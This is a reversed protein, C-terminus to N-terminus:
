AVASSPVVADLSVHVRATQGLLKLLVVVRDAGVERDFIGELGEFVGGTVQVSMGRSLEAHLNGIRHLGTEPDARERLDRIVADPVIACNFGFRVVSQVGITSRAPTLAQSGENVRLFLYRPFLAVVTGDACGVRRGSKIARPFYVEYGQRQLNVEATAEASPKTQILYWRQM